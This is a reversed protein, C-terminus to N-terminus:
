GYRDRHRQLWAAQWDGPQATATRTMSDTDTDFTEVGIFVVFAQGDSGRPIGPLRPRAGAFYRAPRIRCHTTPGPALDLLMSICVLAVRTARLLLRGACAARVTQAMQLTPRTNTVQPGPAWLM